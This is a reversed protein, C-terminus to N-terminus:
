TFAAGKDTEKMVADQDKDAKKYDKNDEWKGKLVRVSKMWSSAVIAAAAMAYYSNTQDYLVVHDNSSVIIDAM